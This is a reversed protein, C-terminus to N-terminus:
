LAPYFGARQISDLERICFQTKKIYSLYNIDDRTVFDCVLPLNASNRRIHQRSSRKMQPMQTFTGKGAVHWSRPASTFVLCYQTIAPKNTNKRVEWAVRIGKIGLTGSKLM